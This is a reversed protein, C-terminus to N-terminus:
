CGDAAHSEPLVFAPDTRTEVLRLDGSSGNAVGSDRGRGSAPPRRVMTALDFQRRDDTALVKHLCNKYSGNLDQASVTKASFSHKQLLSYVKSLTFVREELSLKEGTAGQAATLESLWCLLFFLHFGRRV